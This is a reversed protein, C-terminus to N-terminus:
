STAQKLYHIVTLESGGRVLTFTLADGVGRAEFLEIIEAASRIEIGDVGIIRDGSKLEGDPDAQSVYVGTSQLRYMMATWADTVDIFTAGADIRGPVFGYKILDDAIEKAINIPIAFGIGEIDSGSSKANVIGILEGRGNFLGGGSNGPNVAASTQLLTMMHGDIEISRGLASIIGETISGGLKGLPNGIAVAGEGAVLSDSDGYVAPRLGSAVIKVVALDTKGDRGILEAEYDEGNKLRVTIKRSDGVVHNNTVIYGDASIIVGSGAGETVFQRMRGSSVVSETYIEVVSDSALAAIEAISLERAPLAGGAGILTIDGSPNGGSTTSSLYESLYANLSDYDIEGENAPAYFGTGDTAAKAGGFFANAAYTGGFGAAGSLLAAVVVLLAAGKKGM